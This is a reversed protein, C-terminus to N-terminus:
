FLQILFSLDTNPQINKKIPGESKNYQFLVGSASGLFLLKNQKLQLASGEPLGVVISERNLKLYEEIRQDRTEGHFGPFKLNIYHPNIQFPFFQLAAFSQPQIIPMDNTTGITLGTLNAGASWGIYPTGSSVKEKIIPLLGGAYLSHLLKFTNGGGVMIVDAAQLTAVADVENVVEIDHGLYALANKVLAGYQYYDDDVSAFPIFAIKKPANGLFEHILVAGEQLYGGDGVRSSSLALINKMRFSIKLPRFNNTYVVAIFPKLFTQDDDFIFPPMSKILSANQAEFPLEM